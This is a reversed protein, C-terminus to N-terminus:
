EIPPPVDDKGGKTKKVVAVGAVCDKFHKLPTFKVRTTAPKSIRPGKPDQPNPYSMPPVERAAFKGFGSIM